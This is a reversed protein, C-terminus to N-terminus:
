SEGAGTGREADAGEGITVGAWVDTERYPALVQARSHNVALFPAQTRAEGLSDSWYTADTVPLFRGALDSLAHHLNREPLLHIRGVIKFPPVSVLAREPVKMTRLEPTAEVAVEAVAFLITALNVQAYDAREITARAGFDELIVEELVVFSADTANLVDTLRRQRTRLMGRVVHSDTFLTVHSSSEVGYQDLMGTLM